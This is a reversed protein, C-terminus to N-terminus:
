AVRHLRYKWPARQILWFTSFFDKKVRNKSVFHFFINLILSLRTRTRIPISPWLLALPSIRVSNHGMPMAWQGAQCKSNRLGRLLDRVIEHSTM